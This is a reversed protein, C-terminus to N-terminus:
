YEGKKQAEQAAQAMQMNNGMILAQMLNTIVEWDKNEIKKMAEEKSSPESLRFAGLAIWSGLGEQTIIELGAAIEDRIIVPTNEEMNPIESNKTERKLIGEGSAKNNKKEASTHGSQSTTTNQNNM